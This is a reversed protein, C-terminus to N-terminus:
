ADRPSPCTYVLCVVATAWTAVWHDGRASQAQTVPQAACLVLAVAASAASMGFLRKIQM